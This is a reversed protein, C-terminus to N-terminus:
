LLTVVSVNVVYLCSGRSRPASVPELPAFSRCCSPALPGLGVPSSHRRLQLNCFRLVRSADRVGTEFRFLSLVNMFGAIRRAPPSFISLFPFLSPLPLLASPLPRRRSPLLCGGLM